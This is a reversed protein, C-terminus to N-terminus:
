HLREVGKWEFKSGGRKDQSHEIMNFDGGIFWPIDELSSLWNWLEVRERYDNPAYISCIGFEVEVKIIVWVARACPSQGWRLVKNAWKPSLLIATGGKGKSHNTYFCRADRWICKLGIELTFGVSTLEQLMLCDLDKHM